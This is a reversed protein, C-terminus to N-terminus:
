VTTGGAVRNRQDRLWILLVTDIGFLAGSSDILFVSDKAVGIAFLALPTALMSFALLGFQVAPIRSTQAPAAAIDTM